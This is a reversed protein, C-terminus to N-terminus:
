QQKKTEEPTDTKSIPAGGADQGGCAAATDPVALCPRPPEAAAKDGGLSATGNCWLPAGTSGCYELRSNDSVGGALQQEEKEEETKEEAVSSAASSTTPSVAPAAEEAAAAQQKGCKGSGGKAQARRRLAAKFGPLSTLTLVALIAFVSAVTLQAAVAAAAAVALLLAVTGAGPPARRRFRPRQLSRSFQTPLKQCTLKRALLADDPTPTSPM